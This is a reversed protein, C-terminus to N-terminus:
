VEMQGPMEPADDVEIDVYRATIELKELMTARKLLQLSRACRYQCYRWLIGQRDAHSLTLLFLSSLKLVVAGQM